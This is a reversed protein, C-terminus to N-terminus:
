FKFYYTFTELISRLIRSIICIEIQFFVIPVVVIIVHKVMKMCRLAQRACLVCTETIHSYHSLPLLLIFM